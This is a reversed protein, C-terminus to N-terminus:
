WQKNFDRCLQSFDDGICGLGDPTKKEDSVDLVEFPSFSGQKPLSSIEM